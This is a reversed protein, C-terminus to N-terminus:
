DLLYQQRLISLSSLTSTGRQDLGFRGHHTVFVGDAYRVRAGLGLDVEYLGARAWTTVMIHRRGLFGQWIRQPSKEFALRHLHAAIARPSNVQGLTERIRQAIPRLTSPSQPDSATKVTATAKIGPLEINMMLSLSGM